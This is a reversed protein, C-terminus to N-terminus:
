EILALMEPVPRTGQSVYDCKISTSGGGDLFIGDQLTGVAITNKIANRFATATCDTFSVVLWINLGSNYVLATRATKGDINPMHQDEKARKYWGNDDQLSMSIGGQAWYNGRDSVKIDSASELIPVDYKRAKGDWVLTGRAYKDNVWGGVFDQYNGTVAVDNVVAISLISNQYFFGGNIGYKKSAPVTASPNLYTPRVKLPSTKIYQLTVGGYTATDYTYDYAM